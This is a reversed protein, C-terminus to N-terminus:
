WHILRSSQTRNQNLLSWKLNLAFQVHPINEYEHNQFEKNETKGTSQITNAEPKEKLFLVLRKVKRAKWQLSQSHAYTWHYLVGEILITHSSTRM